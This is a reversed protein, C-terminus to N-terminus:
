QITSLHIAQCQLAFDAIEKVHKLILEVSEEDLPDSVLMGVADTLEGTLLDDINRAHSRLLGAMDELRRAERLEDERLEDERLGGERLGGERIIYRM